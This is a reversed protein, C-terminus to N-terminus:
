RFHCPLLVRVIGSSGPRCWTCPSIINSTEIFQPDDVEVVEAARKDMDLTQIAWIGVLSLAAGDVDVHAWVRGFRYFTGFKMVVVDGRRCTSYPSTRAVNSTKCVADEIELSRILFAHLARPAVKPDVLGTDVNFAHDDSLEHIHHCAVESLVSREFATTNMVPTCYRKVLKHKREHVFCSILMGHEQFEKWLHILWHFKPTMYDRWGADVCMQLFTSCASRIEEATVRGPVNCTQLLDLVNCLALFVNCERICRRSRICVTQVWYAIIPYLSLGESASCKLLKAKRHAKIRSPTFIDGLRLRGPLTWQAVYDGMNTWVQGVGAAMIADLLLCAIVNFPGSCVIGHMWDHMFQTSPQVLDSLSADMLISHPSHTFGVATQRLEFDADNVHTSLRNVAGRIDQDTAFVLEHEHIASCVLLNRGDEDVIESESTRLNLCLMCPKMGGDGKCSWLRKHAEGDQVFFGIQAFLRVMYGAPDTLAIGSDRVHFPAQFFQKICTRFVASIGGLFFKIRSTRKATLCFWATEDSLADPGFEAFSWYIVWVKRLNHGSLQEGPTVEDAYFILNWPTESTCPRIALSRDLLTKFGGGNNYARWLMPLPMIMLVGDTGENCPMDVHVLLDGYPTPRLLQSATARALASRSRVEPLGHEDIEKLIGAVASISAHPLARRIRDLRRYKALPAAM